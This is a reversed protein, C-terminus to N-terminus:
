NGTPWPVIGTDELCIASLNTRSPIANETEAIGGFDREILLIRAKQVLSQNQLPDLIIYGM